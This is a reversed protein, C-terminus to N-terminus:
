GFKGQTGSKLGTCRGGQTGVGELRWWPEWRKKEYSKLICQMKKIGKEGGQLVRLFGVSQMGALSHDQQYRM